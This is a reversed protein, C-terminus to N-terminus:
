PLDIFKHNIQFLDINYRISGCETKGNGQKDKIEMHSIKFSSVLYSVQFRSRARSKVLEPAPLTMEREAKTKNLVQSTLPNSLWEALDSELELTQGIFRAMQHSSEFTNRCYGTYARCKNCRTLFLVSSHGWCIRAWMTLSDVWTPKLAHLLFFLVAESPIVSSEWPCAHLLSSVWTTMEPVCM